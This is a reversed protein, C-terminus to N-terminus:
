QRIKYTKKKNGGSESATGCCIGAVSPSAVVAGSIVVMLVLSGIEEQDKKWRGIQVIKM